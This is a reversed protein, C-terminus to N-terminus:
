DRRLLSMDCYIIGMILIFRNRERERGKKRGGEKERDRERDREKDEDSRMDRHLGTNIHEMGSNYVKVGSDERLGRERQGV